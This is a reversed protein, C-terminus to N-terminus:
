YGSYLNTENNVVNVKFDSVNNYNNGPPLVGIVFSSPNYIDVDNCKFEGSSLPIMYSESENKNHIRKTEEKNYDDCQYGVDIQPMFMQKLYGCKAFTNVGTEHCYVFKLTYERSSENSTLKTISNEGTPIYESNSSQPLWTTGPCVVVSFMYTNNYNKTIIKIVLNDYESSKEFGIYFFDAAEYSGSCNNTGPICRYLTGIHCKFLNCTLFEEHKIFKNNGFNYKRPLLNHTIDEKNLLEAVNFISVRLESNYREGILFDRTLHIKYVILSKNLNFDGIKFEVNYLKTGNFHKWYFINNGSDRYYELRYDEARFPNEM